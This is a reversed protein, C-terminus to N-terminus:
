DRIIVLKGKSTIGGQTKMEWYYVGNSLPSVNIISSEQNIIAQTYVMRGTVDMILFQSNLKFPLSNYLMFSGDNPNPYIFLQSNLISLQSNGSCIFVMVYFSDPPSSGCLNDATVTIYGAGANGTTITISNTTSSGSWGSPLTWTYSTAGAVPAISYIASSGKCLTDAGTIAGPQNPAISVSVALVRTTTSNSCSNLSM